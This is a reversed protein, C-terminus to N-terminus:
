PSVEEVVWTDPDTLYYKNEGVAMPDSEHLAAVIEPAAERNPAWVRRKKLHVEKIIVDYVPM